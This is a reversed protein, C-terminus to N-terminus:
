RWLFALIDIESEFTVAIRSAIFRKGPGTHSRREFVGLDPEIPKAEM